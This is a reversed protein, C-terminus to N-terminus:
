FRLWWILRYAWMVPRANARSVISAGTCLAVIESGEPLWSSRVTEISPLPLAGNSVAFSIQFMSHLQQPHQTSTVGALAQHPTHNVGGVFDPAECATFSSRTITHCQQQGTASPIIPISISCSYKIPCPPPVHPPQQHRNALQKHDQPHLRVGCM